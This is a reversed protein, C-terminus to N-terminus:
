KKFISYINILMVNFKCLIKSFGYYRRMKETLDSLMLNTNKYDSVIRPPLLSKLIIENEEEILLDSEKNSSVGTKDFNTIIRDIHSYSCNDFVIAEIFFQRDSCIKLDERYPFKLQLKRKIFTGSHNVVGYHLSMLSLKHSFRYINSRNEYVDLVEGFVIDENRSGGLEKLM